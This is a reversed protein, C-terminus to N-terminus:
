LHSTGLDVNETNRDDDPDHELRTPGGHIDPMGSASDGAATTCSGMRERFKGRTDSLKLKYEARRKSINDFEMECETGDPFIVVLIQEDANSNTITDDLKLKASVELDRRDQRKRDVYKLKASFGPM